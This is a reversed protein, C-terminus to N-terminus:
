LNIKFKDLVKHHKYDFVDRLLKDYMDMRYMFDKEEFLAYRIEKGIEAEINKVTKDIVKKKLKNGVILIDVLRMNDRMFIGSLVIMKVQGIGKFRSILDKTSVLPSEILLTRLPNILAFNENMMWGAVKKKSMRSEKSKKLPKLIIEKTYQKKKLFGVKYLINIEKRAVPKTIRARKAVEDIDYPTVDNFLFLRMIKVRPESGFIHKLQKMGLLIVYDGLFL